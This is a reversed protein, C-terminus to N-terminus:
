ENATSNEDIYGEYWDTICKKKMGIALIPCGGNRRSELRPLLQGIWTTSSGYKNTTRQWKPNKGTSFYWVDNFVDNLEDAKTIIIGVSIIGCDYYTRLALLDRDFTQDKSSWELEVAVRGKIFDINHGDIYGKILTDRIPVKSYKSQGKLKSFCRVNLDGTISIEEWGKQYLTSEFVKPIESKNGGAERVDAITINFSRLCEEIEAWENPFTQTVIELAHNCNYLEYKEELDPTFYGEVRVHIGGNIKNKAYCV